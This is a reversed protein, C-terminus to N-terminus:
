TKKPIKLNAVEPVVEVEAKPEEARAEHVIVKRDDVDVHVKAINEVLM